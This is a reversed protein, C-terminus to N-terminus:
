ESASTGLVRELATKVEALDRELMNLVMGSDVSRHDQVFIKGLRILKDWPVEPHRERIEKPLADVAERIRHLNADIWTRLLDSSEFFERGRHAYPRIREIAEWIEVLLKREDKM